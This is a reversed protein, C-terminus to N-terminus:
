LPITHIPNSSACFGGLSRTAPSPPAPPAPPSVLAHAEMHHVKVLPLRHTAALQYAKGVGVQLPRPDVGLSSPHLSRLCPPPSASRDAVACILTSSSAPTRTHAHTHQRTHTHQHTPAHTHTTTRAHTHTHTTTYTYQHAHTNTHTNTHTDSRVQLCPSLGPGVTVAVATLRGALLGM